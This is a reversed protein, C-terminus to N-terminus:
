YIWWDRDVWIEGQGCIQVKRRCEQCVPYVLLADEDMDMEAKLRLLMEDIKGWDLDCEFVSYQVPVGYDKLLRHVRNLRKPDAIDYTVVVFM